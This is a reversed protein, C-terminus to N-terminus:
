RRSDLAWAAHTTLRCRTLAWRRQLIRRIPSLRLGVQLCLWVWEADLPIRLGGAAHPRRLAARMSRRQAIHRMGMCASWRCLVVVVTLHRDWAAESTGGRRSRPLALLGVLRLPLRVGCARARRVIGLLRRPIRRLLRLAPQWRRFM